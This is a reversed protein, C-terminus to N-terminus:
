AGPDINVAVDQVSSEARTRDLLRIGFLGKVHNPVARGKQM